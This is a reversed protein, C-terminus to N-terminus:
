SKRAGFHCDVDLTYCLGLGCTGPGSKPANLTTDVERINSLFPSYAATTLSGGLLGFTLGGAGCHANATYWEPCDTLRKTDPWGVVPIALAKAM